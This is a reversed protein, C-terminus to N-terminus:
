ATVPEREEVSFANLDVEESEPWIEFEGELRSQINWKGYILQGDWKGLYEVLSGRYHKSIQVDETGYLGEMVFDGVRDTGQGSIKGSKFTLTLRM